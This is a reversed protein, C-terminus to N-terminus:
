ENNTPLPLQRAAPIHKIVKEVVYDTKLGDRTRKQIIRVECILIDGKSFSANQDIQRLFEEDEITASINTNGDHLRWKNDEKFALSIISFAARRRDELITEDPLSPRAFYVSESRDVRQAVRRDSDLVEFTEIGDRKLPEEVMKQLAERVAVSQYLRLLELQVTFSEGDITITIADQGAKAVSDPSRGRLRKVLWILSGGGIASTGLVIQLLNAAGTPSPGSFIQLMSTAWSQILELDIRFSGIETARVQVRIQSGDDRLASNAADLLQGVALLAPALDRVDMAGDRLAPGDYAITFTERSM